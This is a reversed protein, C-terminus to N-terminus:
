TRREEDGGAQVVHVHHTHPRAEPRHFFPCFSDDPHPVHRYGLRSLSRGYGEIPYLREVAVQIDIIPKAALGPVATSGNHDIRIALDGLADRIRDREAAFATPWAPDYPLIFRTASM